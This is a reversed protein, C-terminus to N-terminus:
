IARWILTTFLALIGLSAYFAIAHARSVERRRYLRIPLAVAAILYALGFVLLLMAGPFEMGEDDAPMPRSAFFYHLWPLYM